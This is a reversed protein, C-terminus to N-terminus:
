IRKGATMGALFDDVLLLAADFSLERGRVLIKYEIEDNIAFQVVYPRDLSMSPSLYLSVEGHAGVISAEIRGHRLDVKAFSRRRLEDAFEPLREENLRKWRERWEQTPLEVRLDASVGGALDKTSPLFPKALLM